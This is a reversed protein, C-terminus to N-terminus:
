ENVGKNKKKELYKRQAKRHKERRIEMEKKLNINEEQLKINEQYIEKYREYCKKYNEQAINYAKRSVFGLNKM